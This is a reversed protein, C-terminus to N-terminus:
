FAEPPTQSALAAIASLIQAEQNALFFAPVGIVQVGSTASIPFIRLEISVDREGASLDFRYFGPKSAVPSPNTDTIAAFAGYDKRLDATINAADGDIPLSTSTSFAFVDFQTQPIPM